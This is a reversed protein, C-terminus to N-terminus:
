LTRIRSATIADAVARSQADGRAELGAIVGTVDEPKKDQSLKYKGELKAFAVSYGVIAASLAALRAEPVKDITWPKKPLLKDEQEASLNILLTRLGENSLRRAEGEGEVAVYNWTPVMAHSAYWDPSVYADPGTLTLLMRTGDPVEAVPNNRALHFRVAGFAGDADLVVPAYAFAITRNTAVGITAFVRQRIFRHLEAIDAVAFAKPRYM